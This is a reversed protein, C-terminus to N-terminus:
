PKWALFAALLREGEVQSKEPHFQTAFVTETRVAAIIDGGHDTRAVVIDDPAGVLRFSHCFYYIPSVSSTGFLARVDPAVTVENWGMHPVRVDASAPMAEVDGPIWGLGQHEGFEHLREALLQLGLCVGLMPKGRRRVHEDLADSWGQERLRTAATGAAGVGPLIIRDADALADPTAAIEAEGGARWVARKVSALNGAGYDVIRVATGM